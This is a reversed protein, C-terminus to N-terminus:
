NHHTDKLCSVTTCCKWFENSWQFGKCLCRPISTHTGHFIKQSVTQSEASASVFLILILMLLESSSKHKSTKMLSQMYLDILILHMLLFYALGREQQRDCLITSWKLGFLCFPESALIFLFMCWLGMTYCLSIFNKGVWGKCRLFLSPFIITTFLEIM